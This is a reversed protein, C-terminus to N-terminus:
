EKVRSREDREAPQKGLGMSRALLLGGAQGLIAGIEDGAFRGIARGLHEGTVPEVPDLLSLLKEATLTQGEFLGAMPGLKQKADEFGPSDISMGDPFREELDAAMNRITTDITSSAQGAILEDADLANRLPEPISDQLARVAEARREPPMDKLASAVASVGQLPATNGAGQLFAAPDLGYTQLFAEPDAEAQRMLSRATTDRLDREITEKVLRGQAGLGQTISESGTMRAFSAVTPNKLPAGKGWRRGLRAGIHRAGVGMGVGLTAAGAVQMAKAALTEDQPVVAGATMLGLLAGEALEEANNTILSAFRM